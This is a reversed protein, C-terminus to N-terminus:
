KTLWGISKYNTAKLKVLQKVSKSEINQQRHIRIM